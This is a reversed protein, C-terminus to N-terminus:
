GTPTVPPLISTQNATATLTAPVWTGATNNFVLTQGAASGAASVSNGRISTADAAGVVTLPTWKSTASNWGLVQNNTISSLASANVELGAVYSDSYTKTAAHLGSSPAGSLVLAGSMTGGALPLYAQSLKAPTVAADKIKATTVSDDAPESSSAESTLGNDDIAPRCASVACVMAILM